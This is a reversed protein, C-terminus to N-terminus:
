QLLQQSRRSLERRGGQQRAPSKWRQFSTNNTVYQFTESPYEFDLICCFPYKSFSVRWHKVMQRQQVEAREAVQHEPRERQGRDLLVEAQGERGLGLVGEGERQQRDLDTEDRQCSLLQSSPGSHVLHLRSALVRPLRTRQFQPQSSQRRRM